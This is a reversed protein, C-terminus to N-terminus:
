RTGLALAPARFQRDRRAEIRKGRSDGAPGAVVRQEPCARDHDSRQATGARRRRLQTRAGRGGPDAGTFAMWGSLDLRPLAGRILLGEPPVATLAGGGLAVSAAFTQRPGPLRAEVQALDGLSLSLDGDIAPLSIEMRLPLPAEAPKSLPAPLDLAAGVLDSHMLLRSSGILDTEGRAVALDLTWQSRGRVRPWLPELQAFGSTVASLPLMGRLSAEALNGPDGTRGGVAISLHAPDDGLWVKLEDASFGDGDFRVPGSAREFFLGWKVDRLDAQRLWVEGAISDEGLEQKLPFRMDLSVDGQGGVDVGILYSGYRHNLPSRRLLGLLNAGSGGGQLAIDLVANDLDPIHASGSRIRNGAIRGGSSEIEMGTNVFRARAQLAEMPPWDPNFALLVDGVEAVGEFRGEGDTFPWADFPGHFVVAASQLDGAVLASELWRLTRPPLIGVPWLEHVLELRGAGLHAAASLVPATGDAASLLADFRLEFAGLLARADALELEAGSADIRVGLRADFGQLMLPERLLRPADVRLHQDEISAVVGLGDGSLSMSLPGIGPLKGSARTTLSEIRGALAQLRGHDFEVVTDEIRGSLASAYLAGRLGAPALDALAALAVLPALPLRETELRYRTKGSRSLSFRGGVEEEGSTAVRLDELDMRWGTDTSRWRAAFGLQEIAVRPEIDLGDLLLPQVGRLIVGAFDAEVRAQHLHRGRFEFWARFDGRGETVGIDWPTAEGLWESLVLGSGVLYARGRAADREFVFGLPASGEGPWASGNWYEREGDRSYGLDVRELRLDLGSQADRIRLRSDRVVLAGPLQAGRTQTDVGGAAPLVLGSLEWRGGPERSIELELGSLRLEVWPRRPLLWAYINVRLEAQEVEIGDGNGLRLRTLRFTPGSTLWQAGASEISVPHGVRAEIWSSLRGVDGALWPLALNVLGVLVAALILLASVGLWLARRLRRLRRRLPTV